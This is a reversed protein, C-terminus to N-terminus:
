DAAQVTKFYPLERPRGWHRPQAELYTALEFPPLAPHGAAYMAHTLMKGQEPNGVHCSACLQAKVAPNRLDAMGSKAKERPTATRWPIRDGKAAEKYHRVQWAESLGHCGNCNVGQKVFFQKKDTPSGPTLDVAHCSMCQPAATVDYGLRRVMQ